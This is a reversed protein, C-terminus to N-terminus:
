AGGGEETEPESSTLLSASFIDIKELWGEVNRAFTAQDFFNVRKGMQRRKARISIYLLLSAWAVPPLLRLVLDAHPKTMLTPLLHISLWVSLIGILYLAGWVLRPNIKFIVLLSGFHVLAVFVELAMLPAPATFPSYLQMTLLVSRYIGYFWLLLGGARILWPLAYAVAVLFGLLVVLLFQVSLIIAKVLAKALSNIVEAFNAIADEM